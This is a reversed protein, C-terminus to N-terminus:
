PVPLVRKRGYFVYVFGPNNLTSGTEANTAAVMFDDIGDGNVDGLASINTGLDDLDAAGVIIVGDGDHGADFDTLDLVASGRQSEGFVVHSVGPRERGLADANHQGIAIDSLGDANVDGIDSATASAGGGTDSGYIVRGSSGDPAILSDATAIALNQTNRGFVIFVEGANNRGLPDGGSAAVLLDSQDDGNFDGARSVVIGLQDDADNGEILIGDSGDGGSVDALNLVAPFGDSRGYVLYVGGARPRNAPSLQPIGLAIDDIGDGNFDGIGALNVRSPISDERRIVFGDSGDGTTVVSLDFVLPFPTSRGFVVYTDRISGILLDPISDGNVDGAGQVRLGIPNAADAGDIVFGEGSHSPTLDVLHVPSAITQARGYLVYVRGANGGATPTASSDGIILDDIGDRNVDGPAGFNVYIGDTLIAFGNTNDGAMFTQLDIADPLHGGRGYLVFLRNYFGTVIADAFGDANIDGAPSIRQGLWEFDFSGSAQALYRVPGALALNLDITDPWGSLATNALGSPGPPLFFGSRLFGLDQANVFGDGNFDAHNCLPTDDLCFFVTRLLGLDQTNVVGDNNLDADCLNGYGDRDTDRQDANAVATCNDLAVDVGDNDPDSSQRGFVVYAQGVNLEEDPADDARPAGLVFDDLGDGNIDGASRTSYCCQDGVSVGALVFGNSAGPDSLLDESEIQLPFPTSRGYVITTSGGPLSVRQASSSRGIADGYIAGNSIAIDDIGDGNIDGAGSIRCCTDLDLNEGMKVIFGESGGGNLILGFDIVPPMEPRGFLVRAREGVEGFILDDFGDANVDGAVSAYYENFYEIVFGASGDGTAITSLDLVPAFGDNRGYIVFYGGALTDAIVLDDLGDGNFDFDGDVERPLFLPQGRVVFGTSGDGAEISSLSLQAPFGSARGFLVVSDGAGRAGILIDDLGDGNVDGAARVEGGALGGQSAGNIVFGTAGVGSAFSSLEIRPAFGDGRGFVVYVKGAQTQAGVSADQAGIAFDDIGDGNIDGLGSVVSGAGDGPLEGSLAVGTSGDGFVLNVLDFTPAFGADHGFIVYTEGAGIRGAPSAGSAGVILDGIGDNNIDGAGDVSIGLAAGIGLGRIAFGESGDGTALDALNLRNPFTDASALLATSAFVIVGAVVPIVRIARHWRDSALYVRSKMM